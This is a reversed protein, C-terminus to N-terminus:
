RESKELGSDIWPRSHLRVYQITEDIAGRAIGADVAAQIFQSIAGAATPGKLLKISRCLINKM